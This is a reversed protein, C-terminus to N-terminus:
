VKAQAAALGYCRAPSEGPVDREPPEPDAVSDVAAEALEAM